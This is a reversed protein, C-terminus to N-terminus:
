LTLRKMDIIDRLPKRIASNFGTQVIKKQDSFGIAQLYFPM